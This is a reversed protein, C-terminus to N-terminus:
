SRRVAFHIPDAEFWAGGMQKWFAGLAPLMSMPDVVMDFALGFEHLSTGPPAVPYQQLGRLYRDYLQAQKAPSRYTSTVRPNLRNYQAVLVLYEAAPRFRPDLDALSAM